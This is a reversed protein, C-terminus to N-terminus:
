RRKLWTGPLFLIIVAIFELRGLWMAMTLSLKLDAPLDPGVPGSSLGVTSLTSVTDFLAPGPAYGHLLFQGWILFLTLAYASFLAVLAVLATENVREGRHRIPMIARDPLAPERLAHRLLTVVLSIRALKLGGGTSGNDAGAIMVLVFLALGLGAAPVPGTSYGATTMASVLNLLDEAIDRPTTRGALLGLVALVLGGIGITLGVRRLSGLRWAAGPKGQAILVYTLLSVSGLVAGTMVVCQAALSYSALSDSRPAFGGTSVGSLTLVVAERWDPVTLLTAATVVLTLAGYAILFQRAQRRTSAIRDGDSIGVKGLRMTPLGSPLVLALVATAMVLGGVWQLWGRLFHAAFPWNDPAAAVSLGTTTIGSMAEFLADLPPMGIAMFGPVALLAAILFVLGISAMAEIRRLDDPLAQGAVLGQAALGLAAPLALAACLRIEGDALAWIAPPLFLVAFVPGHKALTLAITAPRARQAVSAWGNSGSATTM